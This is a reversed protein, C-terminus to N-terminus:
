INISKDSNVKLSEIFKRLLDIDKVGPEKEFRSNLDLVHFYNTNLENGFDQILSVDDPGIGGSLFFPTPIDFNRLVEWDFKLGTGGYHKAKTDFLFHNVNQHFPKILQNLNENGTLRFAKVVPLKASIIECYEPTEDGHLQVMDLGFAESLQLINDIEENVFVGVKKIRKYQKLIDPSIKNAIFRPSKEYFIFGAYDVGMEALAEVQSFLTM